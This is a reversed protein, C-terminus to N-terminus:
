GAARLRQEVRERVWPYLQALGDRLPTAPEWGLEARVRTNDSNRGRVGTPSSLDYHRELRVGALDEVISVLQDITVLESSGINRPESVASDMLRRTGEICDDIWTFSRTQQGDGWIDIRRDGTLEATAVKRCIAAPAKERGGDWAGHPGFVNHYRAIRVALGRERAFAGALQEVFLKEWGYGDEPDAPVAEGERLPGADARDQRSRPYVCASSSFFFRQAGCEDAAELLNAGIRVSLMCAVPNREIFGVGGMDAALDYIAECGTVVERCATPDRLDARISEVGHRLSWQEPPLIDVARVDAGEGALRGVLHGGIFGGAGAILVKM